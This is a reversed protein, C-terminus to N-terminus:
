GVRSRRLLRGPAQSITPYIGDWDGPVDLEPETVPDLNRAEVRHGSGFAGAIPQHGTPNGIGQQHLVPGPGHDAEAHETIPIAGVPDGTRRSPETKLHAHPVPIAGAHLL